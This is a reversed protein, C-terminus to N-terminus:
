FIFFDGLMICMNKVAGESAIIPKLLTNFVLFSAFLIRFNVQQILVKSDSKKKRLKEPCLRLYARKM